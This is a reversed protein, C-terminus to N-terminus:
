LSFLIILSYILHSILYLLLNFIYVLCNILFYSYLPIIELYFSLCYFKGPLRAVEQVSDSRLRLDGGFSPEYALAEWKKTPLGRTEM